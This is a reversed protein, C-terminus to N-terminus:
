GTQCTPVPYTESATVCVSAATPALVTAEINLTLGSPILTVGCTSGALEFTVVYSAPIAEAGTQDIMRFHVVSMIDGFASTSGTFAAAMVTPCSTIDFLANDYNIAGLTITPASPSHTEGVNVKETYFPGQSSFIAVYQFYSAISVTFSYGVIVTGYTSLQVPTGTQPAVNALAKWVGTAGTAMLVIALALLLKISKRM